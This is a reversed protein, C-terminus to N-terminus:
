WTAHVTAGRSDAGHEVLFHARDVNANWGLSAQHLPTSEGEHALADAGHEILFWAIIVNRSATAENLPTLGEKDKATMDAGHEVLFRVVDM